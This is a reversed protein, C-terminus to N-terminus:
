SKVLLEQGISLNTDKLGNINQLEQVSINYRRSISYLTDGKVVYHVDQSSRQQKRSPQQNGTVLNDYKYLEYREILAILKDPYKRDTAYGAARLGKAWGKYDDIDLDFLASYRKRETLFLSHDRYSYKPDKYKRFCEQDEDDDHYIEAGTWDHCKIGFHNNAEVALRGKGSGSELIGQALTISAPINYFKMEEVAVGGFVQIYEATNTIVKPMVEVEPETERVVTESENTNHRFKRSKLYETHQKSSTTKRKRSGCSFVVGAILLLIIIRKM